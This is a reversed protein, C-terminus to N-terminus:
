IAGRCLCTDKPAPFRQTICIARVAPALSIVSIARHSPLSSPSAGPPVACITRNAWSTPLTWTLIISAFDSSPQRKRVLMTSCAQHEPQPARPCPSASAVFAFLRRASRRYALMTWYEPGLPRLRGLLYSVVSLCQRADAVIRCLVPPVQPGSVRCLAGESQSVM